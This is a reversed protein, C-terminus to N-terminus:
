RLGGTKLTQSVVPTVIRGVKTKDMEVSADLSIAIPTSNALSNFVKGTEVNAQLKAQELNIARQMDAYVGDLEENFGVGIGQALYVGVEDRWLKSPSGIKFKKKIYNTMDSVWGDFKDKLWKGSNKIGQWLGKVMDTAIKPFKKPYKEMTAVINNGLNVIHTKIQGWYGSVKQGLKALGNLFSNVITLGLQKWDTNGIMNALALWLGEIISPVIDILAPISNVLGEILAFMIQIGAQIMTVIVDPRLLAQTIATTIRPIASIIIPLSNTFGEILGALLKIGVEIFLPINKIIVEVISIISNVITPILTPLEESIANILGLNIKTIADLILPINKIIIKAFGSIVKVILPAAKQALAPIKELLSSVLRDLVPILTEFLPELNDILGDIAKTIQNTFIDVKGLAEDTAGAAIDDIIGTITGIAPTLSKTFPALFSQGLRSMAAKANEVSGSFTEGLTKAAGGMGKEIANQLEPFGVKGESILDRAEEATVGMTDGLLQLVPIGSDTLQNLEQGTLKGAAAVKNFIAGIDEMGRGSIAAADAVLSLTRELDQGPKVGAAVASAAVTAASDLGYATGKVSALANDMITSVTQADHGLGKLKFQAQEINLSRDLGGQIVLNSFESAINGIGSAVYSLGKMITSSIINGKILTGLGLTSGSAKDASKEIENLGKKVGKTDVKTDITITGDAAFLQIDLKM